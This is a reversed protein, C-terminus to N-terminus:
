GSIFFRIDDAKGGKVTYTAGYMQGVRDNNYIVHLDNFIQKLYEYCMSMSEPVPKWEDVRDLNEKEEGNPGIHATRSYQLHSIGATLLFINEMDKEDILENMEPVGRIEQSRLYYVFGVDNGAEVFREEVPRHLEEYTEAIWEKIDSEDFKVQEHETEIKGNHVSNTFQNSIEIIDTREVKKTEVDEKTESKAFSCGALFGSVMVGAVVTKFLKVTYLLEKKDKLLLSLM